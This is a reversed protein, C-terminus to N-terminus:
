TKASIVIKTIKAATRTSSQAARYFVFKRDRSVLTIQHEDGIQKAFSEGVVGGFGGGIILITAM